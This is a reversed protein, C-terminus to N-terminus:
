SPESTYAFWGLLEKPVVRVPYPRDTDFPQSGAVSAWEQYRGDALQYATLRPEHPDIVWYDAVGLREYVAKKTNLDILATSPSLVEVVLVPPAPLDKETFDGIRGVLVDPQLELYEGQHM